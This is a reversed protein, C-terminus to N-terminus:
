YIGDTSFSYLSEQIFGLVQSEDTVVKLLNMDNKFLFPFYIFHGQCNLGNYISDLSSDM